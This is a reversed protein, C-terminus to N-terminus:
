RGTREEEHEGGLEGGLLVWADRDLTQRIRPPRIRRPRMMRYGKPPPAIVPPPAPRSAVIAALEVCYRDLSAALRPNHRKLRAIKRSAYLVTTHHRGFSNGVVNLTRGCLAMALAMAVIRPHAVKRQRDHTLMVELTINKRRCVVVQCDRVTPRGVPRFYYSAGGNEM